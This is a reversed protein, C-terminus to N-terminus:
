SDFGNYFINTMPNKKYKNMEPLETSKNKKESIRYGQKNPDLICEVQYEVMKHFPTLFNDMQIKTLQEVEQLCLNELLVKTSEITSLCAESPQQKIKYASPHENNFSIFPLTKLNQSLKIIKKARPWTTDILFICIDKKVPLDTTSINILDKGPYLILCNYQAILDNVRKNDTFDIDVIFESNSLQLHTLRGTPNKVKKYEHPHMLLVFRTNTKM